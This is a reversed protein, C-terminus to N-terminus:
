PQRAAHPYLTFPSSLPRTLGPVDCRVRSNVLLQLSACCFASPSAMYKAFAVCVYLFYTFLYQVQVRRLELDLVLHAATGALTAHLGGAQLYAVERSPAVLSVGLSALDACLEWLLGAPPCPLIAIPLLYTVPDLGCSAFAAPLSFVPPPLCQCIAFLATISAKLLRCM